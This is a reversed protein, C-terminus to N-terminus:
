GLHFYGKTASEKNRRYRYRLFCFHKITLYRIIRFLEFIVHFGGQLIVQFRCVKKKNSIGVSEFM